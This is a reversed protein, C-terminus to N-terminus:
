PIRMIGAAVLLAEEDTVNDASFPVLKAVPLNRDRIIIEEGDKAFTVYKSLQNKLEAINVSRMPISGRMAIIAMLNRPPFYYKLLHRTPSRPSRASTRATSWCSSAKQDPWAASAIPVINRAIMFLKPQKKRHGSWCCAFRRSRANAKGNKWT